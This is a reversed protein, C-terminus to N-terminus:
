LRIKLSKKSKETAKLNKLSNLPCKQYKKTVKLDTKKLILLSKFDPGQNGM